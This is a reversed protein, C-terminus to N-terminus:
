TNASGSGGAAGRPSRPSRSSDLLILLGPVSILLVPIVHFPPLAAAALAGLGVAALDARFGRLAALRSKLRALM